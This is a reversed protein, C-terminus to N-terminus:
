KNPVLDDRYLMESWVCQKMELIVRFSQRMYKFLCKYGVSIFTFIKPLNKQFVLQFKWFINKVKEHRLDKDYLFWDM